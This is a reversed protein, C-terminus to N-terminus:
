QGKLERALRSIVSEWDGARPQRFLRMSPYWPSDDRGLMWRWDPDAHLLTWTPRGLAGALHVPLSDVSVILDLEVMRRALEAPDPTTWVPGWSRPWEAMAPGQQLAVWEVGPVGLLPELEGTQISRRPDWGGSQWILGIRRARTRTSVALFESPPNGRRPPAFLYPVNGPITKTTTRFVHPLEMLEVDADYTVDPVGDHLPLLRDIGRVEQLLELLCPQAWVIVERAIQKLPEAFRIFQVTDGLGHYCRVLVRKDRLSQGDWLYQEHRPLHFCPVGRRGALVQDSFRWAEAFDGRRMAAMWPNEAGVSRAGEGSEDPLKM